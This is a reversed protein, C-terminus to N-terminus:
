TERSRELAQGNKLQVIVTENDQVYIKSVATQLIEASLEEMPEMKTFARQLRRTEYENSDIEQYQMEALRFMYERATDEDIPHVSMMAELEAEIRSLENSSDPKDLQCIREPERILSNLLELIDQETQKAMNRGCLRRLMKQAETKQRPFQKELRKQAAKQYQEQKIIEPYEETGLYRTDELIRAIMNKNWSRGAEYLVSQSQLFKVIDQYSEGKEYRQFIYGVLEAEPQDVVVQGWELRYGFPHKRIKM